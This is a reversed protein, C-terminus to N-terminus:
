KAGGVEERWNGEREVSSDVAMSGEAEVGGPVLLSFVLLSCCVSLISM